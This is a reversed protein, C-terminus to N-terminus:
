SWRWRRLRSSWERGRWGQPWPLNGANWHLRWPGYCPRGPGQPSARGATPLCHVTPTPMRTKAKRVGWRQGCGRGQPGLKGTWWSSPAWAGREVMGHGRPKGTHGRKGLSLRTLPRWPVESTRPEVRLWTAMSTAPRIRSLGPAEPGLLRSVAGLSSGMPPHQAPTPHPM